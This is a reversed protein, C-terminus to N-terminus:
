SAIPRQLYFDPDTYDSNIRSKIETVMSDDTILADAVTHNGDPLTSAPSGVCDLGDVQVSVDDTNAIQPLSDLCHLSNFTNKLSWGKVTDLSPHTNEEKWPRRVPVDNQAHPVQIGFRRKYGAPQIPGLRNASSRDIWGVKQSGAKLVKPSPCISHFSAEEVRPGCVSLVTELMAGDAVSSTLDQGLRCSGSGYDLVSNWFQTKKKPGTESNLNM